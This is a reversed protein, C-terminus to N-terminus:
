GGQAATVLEVHAGDPVPTTAWQSRPVVRGDVALATGAAHEDVLTGDAGPKVHLVSAVLQACTLEAETEHEKGNVVVNM